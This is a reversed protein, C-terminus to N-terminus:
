HSVEPLVIWEIEWPGTAREHDETMADMLAAVHQRVSAACAHIYCFMHRFVASDIASTPM